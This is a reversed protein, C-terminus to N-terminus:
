MSIHLTRLATPNAEAVKIIAEQIKTAQRQPNTYTPNTSEIWGVWVLANAKLEASTLWLSYERLIHKLSDHLEKHSKDRMSFALYVEARSENFQQVEFFNRAETQSKPFNDCINTIQKPPYKGKTTPHFIATFGTQEYIATNMVQIIQLMNYGRAKMVGPCAKLTFSHVEEQEVVSTLNKVYQVQRRNVASSGGRGRGRGRRSHAYNSGNRM